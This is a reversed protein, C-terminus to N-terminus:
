IRLAIYRILLKPLKPHKISRCHVSIPDGIISRIWDLYHISHLPVEVNKLTELFPWLHWPTGVCLSIELETIKGIMGKDIANKLAIM